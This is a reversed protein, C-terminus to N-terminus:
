SILFGYGCGDPMGGWGQIILPKTEGYDKANETDIKNLLVCVAHRHNNDSSLSCDYTVTVSARWCTAKIRSGRRNTPGLYKTTVIQM